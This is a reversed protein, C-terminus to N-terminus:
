AVIEKKRRPGSNEVPEVLEFNYAGTSWVNKGSDLKVKVFWDVYGFYLNKSRSMQVVTGLEDTKVYKVKDGVKLRTRNAKPAGKKAFQTISHQKM